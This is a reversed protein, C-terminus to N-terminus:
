SFLSNLTNSNGTTQINSTDKISTLPKSNSSVNFLQKNLLYKPIDYIDGQIVLYAKSSKNPLFIKLYEFLNNMLYFKDRGLRIIDNHAQLLKTISYHTSDGVLFAKNKLNLKIVKCQPTNFLFYAKCKLGEPFDKLIIEIKELLSIVELLKTSIITNDEITTTSFVRYKGDIVDLCWHAMETQVDAENGWLSVKLM